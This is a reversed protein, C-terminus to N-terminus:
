HRPSRMSLPPPNHRPPLERNKRTSAIPRISPCLRNSHRRRARSRDSGPVPPESSDLVALSLRQQHELLKLFTQQTKEQGELFQRHLEATQEALRQLALLNDQANKLAWSLDPQIRSRSWRRNPTSPWTM